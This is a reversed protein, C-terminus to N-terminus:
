PVESVPLITQLTKIVDDETPHSAVVLSQWPLEQLVNQVADSIGLAIMSVCHKELGHKHVLHGLTEATRASFVLVAKIIGTRFMDQIPPTLKVAAEAAYLIWLRVTFGMRELEIRGKSDTDRAALHLIDGHAPDCLAAIRQAVALGDGAADHVNIFGFKKAAAATHSGVCFCPRNFLGAGECVKSDLFAFANASTVMVAQINDFDPAASQVPVITLLPEVVSQFM